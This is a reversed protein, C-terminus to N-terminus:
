YCFERVRMGDPELLVGVGGELEPLLDQWAEGTLADSGDEQSHHNAWSCAHSGVQKLPLQNQPKQQFKQICFLLWKEVPAWPLSCIPYANSSSAKRPPFGAYFFASTYISPSILSVTVALSRLVDNLHRSDAVEFALGLRQAKQNSSGDFGVGVKKKKSLCSSGSREWTYVYFGPHYMCDCQHPKRDPLLGQSQERVSMSKPVAKRAADEPPGLVPVPCMQLFDAQNQRPLDWQFLPIIFEAKIEFDLGRSEIWCKTDEEIGM